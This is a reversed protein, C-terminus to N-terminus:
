QPESPDARHTFIALADLPSATASLHRQSLHLYITTEKLDSHGLLLQITRLDAGAELLHTAFCHRLTHPHLPKRIGARQAAERCAHWVVKSTMPYEATHWRGGPFLWDNKRALRRYHQRLEELLNPSLMIDRDKRGKGGRVHVVMRQSDIDTIKLNALEARRVGTAYLTILITRHFPTLASEILQSVEDPSLIVPLHLRKKPYPTEEVSWVKKLTKVYFFRLAGVRQNVTNDTLKRVRFLHAVYERIQEPGLQDPPRKFYCAIDEITRLYARTTSQTYNRRELEELMMKRLHTVLM